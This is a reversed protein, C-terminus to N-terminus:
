NSLANLVDDINVVFDSHPLNRSLPAGLVYKIQKNTSCAINQWYWYVMDPHWYALIVIKTGPRCFMINAFSAGTPGVVVDANEFLAVQQSLSWKEPQIIEFGLQSIVKELEAQNKLSRYSSNRRVYIRKPLNEKDIAASWESLRDVVMQLAYPSFLGHSATSDANGRKQFPVYGTSSTFYLEKVFLGCGKSLVIVSRNGGVVALLSEMQNEHLLDDIIIPIKQYEKISCFIRIKPLVETMWHAYNHACSDVFTAANEVVKSISIDQSWVVKNEQPYVSLLCHLEESLMDTDFNYMDHCIVCDDKTVLSTGGVVKCSGIKSIRVEPFIYYEHPAQLRASDSLPFVEPRPTDVKEKDNVVLYESDMDNHYSSINKLALGEVLSYQKSRKKINRDIYLRAAIQFLPISKLYRRYFRAYPTNRIKEVLMVESESLSEAPRVHTVELITPNVGM